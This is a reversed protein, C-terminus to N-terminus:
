STGKRALVSDGIAACWRARSPVRGRSLPNSPSCMTSFLGANQHQACCALQRLHQWRLFCFYSSRPWLTDGTPTM